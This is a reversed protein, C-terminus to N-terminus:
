LCAFCACVPVLFIFIVSRVDLWVWGTMPWLAGACLPPCTCFLILRLCTRQPLISCLESASCGRVSPPGLLCPFCAVVSAAPPQRTCVATSVGLLFAAVPDLCRLKMHWPSMRGLDLLFPVVCATAAVVPIRSTPFAALLVAQAHDSGSCVRFLNCRLLALAISGDLGPICQCEFLLYEIHRWRHERAAQARPASGFNRVRPSSTITASVARQLLLQSGLTLVIIGSWTRRVCPCLQTNCPSLELHRAGGLFVFSLFCRCFGVHNPACGGIICYHLGIECSTIPSINGWGGAGALSGGPRLGQPM